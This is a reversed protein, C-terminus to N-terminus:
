HCKPPEGKPEKLLKQWWKKGADGSRLGAEKEFSEMCPRSCFYFSEHELRVTFEADKEEVEMGCVPDIAMM